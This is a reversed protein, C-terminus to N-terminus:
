EKPVDVSSFALASEPVEGSAAQQLVANLDVWLGIAVLYKGAYRILTNERTSPYAPQSRMSRILETSVRFVAATQHGGDRPQVSSLVKDCLTDFVAQTVQLVSMKKVADAVFSFVAKELTPDGDIKDGQDRLMVGLKKVAKKQTVKSSPSGEGSAQEGQSSEEADESGRGPGMPRGQSEDGLLLRVFEAGLEDSRDLFLKEEESEPDQM